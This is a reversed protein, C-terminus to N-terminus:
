PLKLVEKIKKVVVKLGLDSKTLYHVVGQEMAESLKEVGASNSFIIVPINKNKEDGRLKKLITLGDMGPLDLDLLILSPDGEQAMELGEIGNRTKIVDLGENKLADSLLLLLDKSDEIILIKKRENM